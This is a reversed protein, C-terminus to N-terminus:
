HNGSGDEVATLSSRTWTQPRRLFDHLTKGPEAKFGDTLAEFEHIRDLRFTRFDQRLECWAALVWVPGFFALSLPRVVRASGQGLVDTYAFRVKRQRRVAHRLEALDFGIPEMRYSSPALLATNAMYGRLREPVVAEIKAAADGAAAALEADGWTEVIRAGLVLAEIEQETFMLPPLDYGPRLVYGVGAEGEIPVGSAILDRIDRYITRESVELAEGLERATTTQRRRLHQIIEFLRDARRM